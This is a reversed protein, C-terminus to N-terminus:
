LTLIKTELLMPARELFAGFFLATMLLEYLVAYLIGIYEKKEDNIRAFYLFSRRGCDVSRFGCVGITAVCFWIFLIVTDSMSDSPVQTKVLNLFLIDLFPYLIGWILLSVM